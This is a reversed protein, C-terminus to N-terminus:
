MVSTLFGQPFFFASLWYSNPKGNVLWKRMFLVREKLDDFWSALPKLSPYAVRSWLEPITNNIMAVYMKDLDDSMLVQGKIAKRLDELSTKIRNLLRNFREMEQGLFTAMAEMLGNEKVFTKMGAESTLLNKPLEELFKDALEEVMQDPTKGISSKGKEKPQISLPM